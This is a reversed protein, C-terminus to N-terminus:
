LDRSELTRIENRVERLERAVAAAEVALERRDGRSIHNKYKKEFREVERDLVRMAPSILRGVEQRPHSRFMPRPTPVRATEHVPRGCGPCFRADEPLEQGCNGCHRAAM